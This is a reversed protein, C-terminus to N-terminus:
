DARQHRPRTEVMPTGCDCTRDAQPVDHIVDVRPLEAPLPRRKGRAVPQAPKTPAGDEASAQPAPAIIAQDQSEPNLQVLVKAEDFLRSQASLQESSAGFLRHRVLTAQELMHIIYEHAQQRISQVAVQYSEQCAKECVAQTDALLAELTDQTAPLVGVESPKPFVIKM